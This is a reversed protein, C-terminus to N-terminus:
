CNKALLKKRANLIHHIMNGTITNVLRDHYPTIVLSRCITRLEHVKAHHRLRCIGWKCYREYCIDSSDEISQPDPVTRSMSLDHQSTITRAKNLHITAAM